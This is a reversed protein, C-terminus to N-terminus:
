RPRHRRARPRAGVVGLGAVRFSRGFAIAAAFGSLFVFIEAADSLGFRSPTYASWTNFPIHNVFIILLAWGRFFDLLLNRGSTRQPENTLAHRPARRDALGPNPVAPGAVSEQNNM